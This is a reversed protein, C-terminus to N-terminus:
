PAVQDNVLPITSPMVAVGSDRPIASSPGLAATSPDVTITSLLEDLRPLFESLLRHSSVTSQKGRLLLRGISQRRSILPLDLQWDNPRNQTDRYRFAHFEEHLSPVSVNLRVTNVDYRDAMELLTNWFAEWRSGHEAYVREECVRGRKEPSSPLLSRLGQALRATLLRSEAHGFHRTVILTGVVALVGVLALLENRHYVSALAAIATCGCLGAIWALTRRRSLGRRLLCHHLHGRDASCVSRGTLGRRLIAMGTDLIPIAFLATPTALAITTPGKLGSRLALVGIVLGILM